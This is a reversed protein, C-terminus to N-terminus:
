LPSIQKSSTTPSTIQQQNASSPTPTPPHDTHASEAPLPTSPLPNSKVPIADPPTITTSLLPASPPVAEKPLIIPTPATNGQSARTPLSPPSIAQEFATAFAKVSAFRQSPDKALATLIVQDLEPSLTSVKSRLSPPFVSLHQSYLEVFTGHFPRDGTLWEYVVVALAYQDSALRPRGQLQEPSMYAATGVVEQTSQLRSSQAILAIGFDSLLLENHRGLLINEPKIDRHIVKEDHAYQLASAIQKFYDLV